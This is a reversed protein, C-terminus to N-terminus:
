AAQLAAAQAAELAKLGGLRARELRRQLTTAEAEAQSARAEAAAAAAAAAQLASHAASSTRFSAAAFSEAASLQQQLVQPTPTTPTLTHLHNHLNGHKWCHLLCSNTSPSYGCM